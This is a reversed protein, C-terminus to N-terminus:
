TQNKSSNNLLIHVLFYSSTEKLFLENQMNCNTLLLTYNFFNLINSFKRMLFIIMVNNKRNLTDSDNSPFPSIFICCFLSIRHNNFSLYKQTRFSILILSNITYPIAKKLFLKTLYM